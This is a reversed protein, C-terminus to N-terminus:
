VVKSGKILDYEETIKGSDTIDIYYAFNGNLKSIAKLHPNNYKSAFKAINEKGKIIAPTPANPFLIDYALTSKRDMGSCSCILLHKM